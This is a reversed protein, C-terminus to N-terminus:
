NPNKSYSSVYMNNINKKKTTPWGKKVGIPSNQNKNKSEKFFTQSAPSVSNNHSANGGSIYKSQNFNSNHMNKKMIKAGM